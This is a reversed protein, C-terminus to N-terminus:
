SSSELKMHLNHVLDMRKQISNENYSNNCHSVRLIPKHLMQRYKKWREPIKGAM